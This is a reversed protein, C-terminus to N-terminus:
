RRSSVWWASRATFCHSGCRGASVPLMTLTLGCVCAFLLWVGAAGIHIRAVNRHTGNRPPAKPRELMWLVHAGFAAFGVVIIIAFLPAWQTRLVLAWFLGIIGTELLIASICVTPGSPMAAPLVMPVLRYGLGVVMMCAWGVAALHAHAFVNSLVYGPLFHHVKDFGLLVGMTVAALMNASAFYIHLKVGGPVKAHRVRLALRTAVYAVGCAATAASWAMGGFEAMWFHAVMGIVGIGILAFAAYDAARAPFATGFALPLVVYTSGLISMAIWGITVLHVIAVIRSHYFFGVVARPNWATLAFALALFVHATIVYLVVLRRSPIM